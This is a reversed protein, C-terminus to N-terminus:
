VLRFRDTQSALLFFSSAFALKFSRLLMELSIDLSYFYSSFFVFCGHHSSCYRASILNLFDFFELGLCCCGFLGRPVLVLLFSLLPLWLFTFSKRMLLLLLLLLRFVWQRERRESIKLSHLSSRLRATPFPLCFFRLFIAFHVVVVVTSRHVGRKKEKKLLM